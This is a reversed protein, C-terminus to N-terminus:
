PKPPLIKFRVINRSGLSVHEIESGETVDYKEILLMLLDSHPVDIQYANKLREIFQAYNNVEPKKDRM